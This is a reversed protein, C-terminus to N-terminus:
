EDNMIEDYASSAIESVLKQDLTNVYGKFDDSMGTTRFMAHVRLVEDLLIKRELEGIKDECFAYTILFLAETFSKAERSKTQDEFVICVSHNKKDVEIRVLTRRTHHFM